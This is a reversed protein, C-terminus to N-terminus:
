LESKLTYDDYIQAARSWNLMEFTGAIYDGRKNQYDLYYAHEWVDLTLLPAVHPGAPCLADHGDRVKLKGKDNTVLWVWGSGFHTAAIKKWVSEFKGFSGFDRVIAKYLNSSEDVGTKSPDMSAWYFEHNYAQAALNYPKSGKKSEGMVKLLSDYKEAYSGLANLKNVYGTYHKGHHFGLTKASVVPELADQPFPLPNVDFSFVTLFLACLLLM